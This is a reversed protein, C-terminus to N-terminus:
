KKNFKTKLVIASGVPTYLLATYYQWLRGNQLFSRVKLSEKTIKEFPAYSVAWLQDDAERRDVVGLQEGNHVVRTYNLM